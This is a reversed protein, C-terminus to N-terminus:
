GTGLDRRQVWRHRADGAHDGAWRDGGSEEIRRPQGRVRDVARRALRVARAARRSCRWRRSPTSRASSSSRATPQRCLRPPFRGAHDGPRPRELRHEARRHGLAHGALRSVRPPAPRMAVWVLTGIIAGGAIIAAVGVLAVRRWTRWLSQRPRRRFRRTSRARSRWARCRRHRAARQRPDKRCAADRAPTSAGAVDDGAAGGLGARARHRAALTESMTRAM